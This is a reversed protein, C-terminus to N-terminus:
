NFIFLNKAKTLSEKTSTFSWTEHGLYESAWLLAVNTSTAENIKAKTIPKTSTPNLFAIFAM